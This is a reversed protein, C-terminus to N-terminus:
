FIIFLCFCIVSFSSGGLDTPIWYVIPSYGLFLNLFFSSASGFCFHCGSTATDPPSLLELASLVTNFLDLYVPHPWVSIALTFMSLKPILSSFHIPNLKIWMVMMDVLPFCGKSPISYVEYDVSSDLICYMPTIEFTVSHDWNSELWEIDCYDLDIGWHSTCFFDM